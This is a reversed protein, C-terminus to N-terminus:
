ELPLNSQSNKMSIGGLLLSELVTVRESNKKVLGLFIAKKSSIIISIKKARTIATNLLRRNLLTFNSENIVTIVIPFESGQAKHISSCWHIDINQIDEENIHVEDSDFKITVVANTAAVIYGIDGNFIGIKYNNNNYVVRDGIYFTNKKIVFPTTNNILSVREQIIKNLADIGSSGTYGPSIVQIDHMENGSSLLRELTSKFTEITNESEIFYFGNNSKPINGNIIDDSAIPIGSGGVTRHLLKLKTHKVVNSNFIDEVPKGSGVPEIQEPDGIMILRAKNETNVFSLFRSLLEADVMFSEDIIIAEANKLLPIYEKTMLKSLTFCKHGTAVSIMKVAIGTPACLLVNKINNNKFSNVLEKIITTKGRGPGGTIIYLSSTLANNIAEIQETSYPFDKDIPIFNIKEVNYSLIKKIINCINLEHRVSKESYLYDKKDFTIKKIENNKLLLNISNYIHQINEENLNLLENSSKVIKEINYATSGNDSMLKIAEITACLIRDKDNKEKKLIDISVGDVMKFGIKKINILKYPNSLINFKLESFNINKYAKKYNRVITESQKPGFGLGYLFSYIEFTKYNTTIGNEIISLKDDTCKTFHRLKKIDCKLVNEIDIGFFNVLETAFATGIGKFQTSSLYKIYGDIIYTKENHIEDCEIILGHITKKAYGVGSIFDNLKLSKTNTKLMAKKGNLGIIQYISYIENLDNNNLSLVRGRFRIQKNEADM